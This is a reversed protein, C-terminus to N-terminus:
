RKSKWASIRDAEHGFPLRFYRSESKFRRVAQLCREQQCRDSHHPCPFMVVRSPWLRPPPKSRTTPGWRVLVSSTVWRKLTTDLINSTLQAHVDVARTNLGSLRGVRHLLIQLPPSLELKSLLISPFATCVNEFPFLKKGWQTAYHRRNLRTSTWVDSTLNLSGFPLSNDM